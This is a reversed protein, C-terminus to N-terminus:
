DKPVESPMSNCHKKIEKINFIEERNPESACGTEPDALTLPLSLYNKGDKTQVLPKSNSCYSLESQYPGFNRKLKYFSKNKSCQFYVDFYLPNLHPEDRNIKFIIFSLDEKELDITYKTYTKPQYHQELELSAHVSALSGFYLLLFTTFITLKM